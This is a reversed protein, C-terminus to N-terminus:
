MTQLFFGIKKIFLKKHLGHNKNSFDSCHKMNLIFSSYLVSVLIKIFFQSLVTYYKFYICINISITIQTATSQLLLLLLHLTNQLARTCSRIIELLFIDVM